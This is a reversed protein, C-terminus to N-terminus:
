RLAPTGQACASAEHQSIKAEKCLSETVADIGPCRSVYSCRVHSPTIAARQLQQINTM